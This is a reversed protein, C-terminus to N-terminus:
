EVHVDEVLKVIYELIKFEEKTAFSFFQSYTRLQKIPLNYKKVQAENICYVNELSLIKEAMKKSEYFNGKHSLNTIDRKFRGKRSCYFLGTPIHLIKYIKDVENM